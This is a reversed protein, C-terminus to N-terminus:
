SFDWKGEMKLGEKECYKIGLEKYESVEWIMREFSEELGGKSIKELEDCLTKNENKKLECIANYPKDGSQLYGFFQGEFDPVNVIVQNNKGNISELYIKENISWM